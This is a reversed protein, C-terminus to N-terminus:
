IEEGGWLNPKYNGSIIPEGLRRAALEAFANTPEVGCANWNSFNNKFTHIFVGGGCGIDLLTGGREILEPANKRIWAVKIFNESEEAPLSTIRDFYCDPTENRISADRFKSYLTEADAWDLQPDHYVFGCENCTVIRRIQSLYSTDILALYEDDFCQDELTKKHTSKCVICDISRM